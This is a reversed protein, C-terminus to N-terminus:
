YEERPGRWSVPRDRLDCSRWLDARPVLRGYQRKAIKLDTALAKKLMKITKDSPHPDTPFGCPLTFVGTLHSVVIQLKANLPVTHFQGDEHLRWPWGAQLAARLQEIEIGTVSCHQSRPKTSRIPM